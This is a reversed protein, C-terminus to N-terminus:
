FSGGLGFSTGRQENRSARDSAADWSETRLRRVVRVSSLKRKIVKHVIPVCLDCYGFMLFFVDRAIYKVTGSLSFRVITAWV